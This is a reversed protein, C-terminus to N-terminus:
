FTSARSGLVIINLRCRYYLNNDIIFSANNIAAFVHALSTSGTKHSWCFTLNHSPSHLFHSPHLEKIFIHQVNFFYISDYALRQNKKLIKVDQFM